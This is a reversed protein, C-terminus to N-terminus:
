WLINIYILLKFGFYIVNITELRQGRFLDFAFFGVDIIIPSVGFTLCIAKLIIKLIFLM